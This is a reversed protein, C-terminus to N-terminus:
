NLNNSESIYWEITKGIGKEISIEPRWGLLNLETTNAISEMIENNRFPIKGFIIDTKSNTINKILITVEKISISSGAGLGYEVRKRNLKDANELILIYAAVADSIYIFDRKQTGKTMELIPQNAHLSKIITPIFKSPNDSPGYLQELYVNLFKLNSNDILYNAYEVFQKKSSVYVKLGEPLEMGPTFFTDSNIFFEINYKIGLEILQIPFILNSGIIESIRYDGRGYLTATHIVGKINNNMFVEELSVSDINYSTCENLENKIRSIDSFNRKLIVVKYKKKLLAKLIESGLFGTAGTLLITSDKM